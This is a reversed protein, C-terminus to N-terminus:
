FAGWPQDGPIYYTPCIFRFLRAIRRARALSEGGREAEEAMKRGFVERFYAHAAERRADDDEYQSRITKLEGADLWFGGCSGCEDVEVERKPSYYHRMMVTDRCNPCPRASERDVKAAPDRPVDLLAEGAAEDQEDVKKLELQDFWIGGCGDRCVDVTLGGVTM